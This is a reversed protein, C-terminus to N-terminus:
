SALFGAYAIIANTHALKIIRKDNSPSGLQVRSMTCLELEKSEHYLKFIDLGRIEFSESPM